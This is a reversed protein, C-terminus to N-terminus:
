MAQIKSVKKKCFIGWVCKKGNTRLNLLVCPNNLRATKKQLMLSIYFLFTQNLKKEDQPYIGAINQNTTAEFNLFAVKGITAGVLAILTTGQKFIKASSNQLGKETIFDTIEDIYHLNKCVSSGLWKITGNEWYSKENKPPTGGSQVFCVEGLRVVEWEQPLIGLSTQKYGQKISQTEGVGLGGGCPLPSKQINESM